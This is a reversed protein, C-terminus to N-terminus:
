GDFGPGGQFALVKLHHDDAAADVADGHRAFAGAGAFAGQQDLLVIEGGADGAAGGADNVAAQAVQLVAFDIQNPFRNAFPFAQQALARVQDMGNLKKKQQVLGALAAGHFHAGSQPEVLAEGSFFRVVEALHFQLAHLTGEVGAM